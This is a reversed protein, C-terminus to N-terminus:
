EEGGEESSPEKTSPEDTPQAAATETAIKGEAKIAAMTRKAEEKTPVNEASYKARAQPSLYDGDQPESYFGHRIYTRLNRQFYYIHYFAMLLLGFFVASQTIVLPIKLASTLPMKELGWQFYEWGWLLLILNIVIMLLQVLLGLTDKIRLNHVYVSVLDAKIHSNEFSGHVAGMFYLWFAFLLIVDESGYFNGGFVYRLICSYVIVATVVTSCTIMVVRVIWIIVKWFVTEQLDFTHGSM